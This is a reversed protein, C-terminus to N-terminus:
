GKGREELSQVVSYAALVLALKPTDGGGWKTEHRGAYGPQLYFTMRCAFPREPYLGRVEYNTVSVERKQLAVQLRWADGPNRLPDPPEAQYDTDPDDLITWMESVPQMTRYNYGHSKVLQWGCFRALAPSITDDYNEPIM